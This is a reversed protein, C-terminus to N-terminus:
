ARGKGKKRATEERGTDQSRYLWQVRRCERVKKEIVPDALQYKHHRRLHEKFDHATNASRNSCGRVDCVYHSYSAYRDWDSASRTRLRRRDVLLKACIMLDNQVDQDALYERIAAEIKELTKRGSTADRGTFGALRHSEWDGLDIEGLQTGGDFRYYPFQVEGNPPDAHHLMNQHAKLTRSPLKFATKVNAIVDRLHGPNRGFMHLPTKGTGISIFPGINMNMIGGHKNLIDKYAEESPNNSGFGGDKFTIAEPGRGTKIRIPSFYGPAASTARAVEWISVMSAGGPNRLTRHRRPPALNGYTRFLYPSEGTNHDAYALVISLVNTTNAPNLLSWVQALMGSVCTKM